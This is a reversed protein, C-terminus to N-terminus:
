DFGWFAVLPFALLMCARPLCSRSSRVTRTFNKVAIECVGGGVGVQPLEQSLVLGNEPDSMVAVMILSLGATSKIEECASCTGLVVYSHKMQLHCCNTVRLHM